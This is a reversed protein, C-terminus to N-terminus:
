DESASVCPCSSTKLSRYQCTDRQLRACARWTAPSYDADAAVILAGPRLRSEVLNLIESYLAKAGDLLAMDITVPLDVSLTRLADGERFEV